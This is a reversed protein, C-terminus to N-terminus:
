ESMLNTPICHIKELQIVPVILFRVKAGTAIYVMFVGTSTGLEKEMVRMLLNYFLQQAKEPFFSIM